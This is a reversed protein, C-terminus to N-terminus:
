ILENMKLINKLHLEVKEMLWQPTSTAGCIGISKINKLWETQIEEPSVITYSLPNQKKCVEYLLKGNSSKKGSVFLILDFQMAFKKLHPVRNSVQRCITDHIIVENEARKQLEDVIEHFADLPLTTQSYLEIPKQFDLQSLDVLSSVVLANGGTQGDLGLVEPHGKKGFIVLQGGKQQLEIYSAKVREQLKLVVPCTADIIANNNKKLRAYTSPPEGHSRILITQNSVANINEKRLTQMGLNTLRMVEEGNHVIDGLCLLQNEKNLIEEAKSIAKKVGFCFGSKQDIEIRM